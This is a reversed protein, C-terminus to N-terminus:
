YSEHLTPMMVKGVQHFQRSSHKPLLLASFLFHHFCNAANLISDRSRWVKIGNQKGKKNKHMMESPHFAELIAVKM